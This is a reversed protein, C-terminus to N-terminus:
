MDDGALKFNFEKQWPWPDAIWQWPYQSPRGMSLMGFSKEYERALTDAEAAAANYKALAERDAPHTNLYLHLDIV